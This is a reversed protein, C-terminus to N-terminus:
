LINGLYLSLARLDKIAMETAEAETHRGIGQGHAAKTWLKVAFPIVYSPMKPMVLPLTRGKTYVFRWLVLPRCILVRSHFSSFSPFM